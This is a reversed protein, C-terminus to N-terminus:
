RSGSMPPIVFGDRQVATWLVEGRPSTTQDLWYQVTRTSVGFAMAIQRDTAGRYYESLWSAWQTRLPHTACSM